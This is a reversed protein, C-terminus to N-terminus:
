ARRCRGERGREDVRACVGRGAMARAADRAMVLVAEGDFEQHVREAPFGRRGGRRLMRIRFGDPDGGERAPM